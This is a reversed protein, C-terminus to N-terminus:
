PKESNIVQVIAGVDILHGSTVGGNPLCYNHSTTDLEGIKDCVIFSSNSTVRAYLSGDFEFLYGDQVDGATTEIGQM